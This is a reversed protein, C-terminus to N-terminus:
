FLNLVVHHFDNCLIMVKDSFKKGATNRMLKKKKITTFVTTYYKDLFIKVPFCMTSFSWMLDTLIHRKNTQKEKKGTEVLMTIQSVFGSLIRMSTQLKYLNMFHFDVGKQDEWLRFFPLPYICLCHFSFDWELLVYCSM